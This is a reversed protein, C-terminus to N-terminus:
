MMEKIIVDYIASPTLNYKSFLESRKGHEIFRDPLGFRRIKIDGFKRRELFELVASGFGGKLVGDELTAIRKIDHAIGELLEEDLPNIFRANVVMASLRDRELLSAIDLATGAMSGIAIIALDKGNKMVEAKGLRIAATRTETLSAGGKPYRIACPGPQSLCFEVMDKLELPDRPAMFVLNPIHRLYAIDFAGHHTPGDEGVLGARDLCFVVPLRQLCVDHIIQDYGRQLFTSYIATFPRFDHRALGAAFGVAHGEAIGVDFFREPFRSAFESLGTGDVMAATVCVIRPNNEALELIKEGFANTFTMAERTEGKRGTAIDFPGTSHFAGPNAEAYRFGKGKKTIVHILIPENLNMLNRFTLVLQQIDHGDIPGFYRFGMEEFIMGPILLNKLGEELKRAARYARFGFRPIRKLLREIDKRVKNYAPNVIIRNLYRSLAGVSRSISLENDNLVIIMDKQAHGAHNLAEFAMGGALAADGIVAILKDKEGKLDRGVVLGLLTSIVTSSHGTTFTDYEPSEDRNPFGSLGGLQRLTHFKKLRGTLLKHAYTQHGVDWLIVDKPTNFVYHLAVALEVAGLSSALHGGTKSVTKIMEERIEAALVPLTIPKLKRLDSPSNISDILRAM